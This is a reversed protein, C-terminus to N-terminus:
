ANGKKRINHIIKQVFNNLRDAPKISRPRHNHWSQRAHPVDKEYPLKHFGGWLVPRVALTSPALSNLINKLMIRGSTLGTRM